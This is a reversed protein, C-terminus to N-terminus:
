GELFTGREGLVWRLAWYRRNFLHWRDSMLPSIDREKECREMEKRIEEETRM